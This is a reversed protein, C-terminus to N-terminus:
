VWKYRGRGKKKSRSAAQGKKTIEGLEGPTDIRYRSKEVIINKDKKSTRFQKNLSQLIKNGSTKPGELKFSAASTTATIIAGRKSAEEFSLGSAVRQFVGRRRISVGYGTRKSASASRSRLPPSPPPSPRGTGPSPSPSPSISPSPSPSRSQSISPSLSPSISPSPSPSLSPSLSVSQSPSPSRSQSPSPSRSQSISASRSPSIRISRSTSRSPSALRVTAKSGPGPSTLTYLQQGPKLTVSQSPVVLPARTPSPAPSPSPASPATDKLLSEPYYKKLETLRAQAQETTLGKSRYLTEQTLFFDTVDKSRHPEPGFYQKGEKTERLTFISTGKRVGQESARQLEFGQVRLRPQNLDFGFFRNAAFNPSLADTAATDTTHIDVAHRGKAEILTGEPTARKATTDGARRLNLVLRDVKPSVAETSKPVQVDLDGAVKGRRVIIDPPAQQQFAFSGYTFGGEEKSFKLAELVGAESLTETRADIDSRTFKSKQTETQRLVGRVEGVLEASAEPYEVGRGKQPDAVRVPEGSRTPLSAQLIRAETPSEFVAGQRGVGKLNIRPTGIFPRTAGTPSQGVGILPQSRTQTEAAFGRYRVSVGKDTPINVQRYTIKASRPGFGSQGSLVDGAAKPGAFIAATLFTEVGAETIPTGGPLFSFENAEVERAARGYETKIDAGQVNLLADATAAIKEGAAPVAGGLVIPWSILGFAVNEAVRGVATERETTPDPGADGFTLFRATRRLRRGSETQTPDFQAYFSQERQKTGAVRNYFAAQEETEIKANGGQIQAYIPQELPTRTSELTPREVTPPTSLVKNRAEGRVTANIVYDRSYLNQARKETYTAGAYSPLSPAGGERVIVSRGTLPSVYVGSTKGITPQTQKNIVRTSFEGRGRLRAKNLLRKEQETTEIGYAVKQRATETAAQTEALRQRDKSAEKKNLRKKEQAFTRGSSIANDVAKIRKDLKNLRDAKNEQLNSLNDGKARSKRLARLEDGEQRTLNRGKAELESLRKEQQKRRDIVDKIQKDYRNILEKKQTLLTNKQEQLATVRKKEEQVKSLQASVAKKQTEISKIREARQQVLGSRERSVDASYLAQSAARQRLEKLRRDEDGNKQAELASLNATLAAEAQQVQAVSAM